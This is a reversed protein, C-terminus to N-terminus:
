SGINLFLINEASVILPYITGRFRFNAFYIMLGLQKHYGSNSAGYGVEIRGDCRIAM